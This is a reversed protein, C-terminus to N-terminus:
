KAQGRITWYFKKEDLREIDSITYEQDLYKVKWNAGPFKDFQFRILFNKLKGLVTQGQAYERFGSPNSIEAWTNYSNKPQEVWQGSVAQDVPVYILQVQKRSGIGM